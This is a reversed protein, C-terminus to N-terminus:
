QHRAYRDDGVIRGEGEEAEIDDGRRKTALTETKSEPLGGHGSEPCTDDAEVTDDGLLIVVCPGPEPQSPTILTVLPTTAAVLRGAQNRQRDHRKGLEGGIVTRGKGRPA